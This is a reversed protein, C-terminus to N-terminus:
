LTTPVFDDVRRNRPLPAIYTSHGCTKDICYGEDRIYEHNSAVHNSVEEADILDDFAGHLFTRDRGNGHWVSVVIYVYDKNITQQM